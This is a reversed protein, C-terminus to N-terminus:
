ELTGKKRNKIFSVVAVVITIILACFTMLNSINGNSIQIEGQVYYQLPTLFHLFYVWLLMRCWKNNIWDAMFVLFFPTLYLGGYYGSNAPIYLLGISLLILAIVQEKVLLAMIIAIIGVVVEVKRGIGALILADEIEKGQNIAYQYILYGLGFRETPRQPNGFAISSIKVNEYLQAIRSVGGAFFFFPTIVLVVTIGASILIERWMKKRLYMIGFIVPFVKISASFALMFCSLYRKWKVNSDYNALFWIISAASIIILNGREITHLLIASFIVPITFLKSIKLRDCMQSLSWVLFSVMLLTYIVTSFMAAPTSWCAQLDLAQYETLRTFPYLILYCIPLYARDPDGGEILYYPNRNCIYRLVNLFDGMYDNMNSFYVRFQLDRYGSFMLYLHLVVTTAFAIIFLIRYDRIFRHLKNM